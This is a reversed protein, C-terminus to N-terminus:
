LPTVLIHVPSDFMYPLGKWTYPGLGSCFNRPWKAVATSAATAYALNTAPSHAGSFATASSPDPLAFGVAFGVAFGLLAFGLALGAEDEEASEEKEEASWEGASARGGEGGGGGGGRIVGFVELVM